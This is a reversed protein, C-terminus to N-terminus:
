RRFKIKYENYADTFVMEESTIYDVNYTEADGGYIITLRYLSSDWTYVGRVNDASSFCTGDANFEVYSGDYANGWNGDPLERVSDIYWRGTITAATEEEDEGPNGDDSAPVYTDPNKALRLTGDFERSYLVLLNSSVSKVQYSATDGGEYLIRLSEDASDYTYTFHIYSGTDYLFGSGDENFTWRWEPDYEDYWSGDEHSEMPYWEGYISSSSGSGSGLPTCSGIIFLSIVATAATLFSFKKM